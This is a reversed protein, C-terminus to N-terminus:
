LRRSHSSWMAKKLFRITRSHVWWYTQYNENLNGPPGYANGLVVTRKGKQDIPIEIFQTEWITSKLNSFNSNNNLFIAHGGHSTSTKGQSILQYGDIQLLSTDSDDSLWTEQLCIGGFDVGNERLYEIKLKFPSAWALIM